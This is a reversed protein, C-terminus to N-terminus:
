PTMILANRGQDAKEEARWAVQDTSKIKHVIFAHYFLQEIVNKGAGGNLTFTFVVTFKGPTTKLDYLLIGIPREYELLIFGQNDYENEIMFDVNELNKCKVQDLQM